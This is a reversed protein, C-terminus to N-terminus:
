LRVTGEAQGRVAQGRGRGWGQCGLSDPRERSPCPGSVAPPLCEGCTGCSWTGGPPWAVRSRRRWGAGHPSGGGHTSRGFAGPRAGGAGAPAWGARWSLAAVAFGAPQPPQLSGVGGRPRSAAQPHAEPSSAPCGRICVCIHLLFLNGM